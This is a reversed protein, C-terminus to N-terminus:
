TSSYDYFMTVRSRVALKYNQETVVVHVNPTRAHAKVAVASQLFSKLLSTRETGM